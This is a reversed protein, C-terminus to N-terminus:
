QPMAKGEIGELRYVMMTKVASGSLGATSLQAAYVPTTHGSERFDCMSRAMLKEPAGFVPFGHARGEGSAPCSSLCLTQAPTIVHFQYEGNERIDPDLKQLYSVM